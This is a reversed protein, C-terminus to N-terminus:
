SVWPEQIFTSSNPFRTEYVQELFCSTISQVKSLNFRTPVVEKFLKWRVKCEIHSKTDRFNPKNKDFPVHIFKNIIRTFVLFM